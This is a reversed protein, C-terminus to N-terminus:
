GACGAAIYEQLKSQSVGIESSWESLINHFVAGTGLGDNLVTPHLFNHTVAVSYEINMVAHKWGFPIYLTQGARQTFIIAREGTPLTIPAPDASETLALRIKESMLTRDCGASVNADKTDSATSQNTAVSSDMFLSLLNADGESAFYGSQVQCSTSVRNEHGPEVIIWKKAGVILSNWASSNLPDIHLGVGSCKPGVVLWRYNPRMEPPVMTFVDQSFYEPVAYDNLIESCDADFTSDFLYLPRLSAIKVPDKDIGSDITRDVEACYNLYHSLKMLIPENTEVNNGCSFFCNGYNAVFHPATWRIRAPWNQTLGDILCPIPGHERSSTVDLIYRQLFLATPIPRTIRALMTM